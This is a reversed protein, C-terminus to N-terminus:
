DADVGGRRFTVFSRVLFLVQAAVAIVGLPRTQKRLFLIGMTTETVGFGLTWPRLPEKFAIATMRDWRSPFILHSIGIVTLYWGFYRLPSRDPEEAPAPYQSTDQAAMAM